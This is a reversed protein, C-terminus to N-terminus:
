AVAHAFRRVRLHVQHAGTVPGLFMLPCAGAIVAVGHERCLAVAEPSWAGPSGVGRFLWVMSVDRRVCERVADLAAPGTLMVIVADVEGPVSRLDPVCPLGDIMARYPNVPVVEHGHDVFARLITWGFKKPDDTAGVMVIRDHSLFKEVVAVDVDPERRARVRHGAVVLAVGIAAVVAQFAGFERVVALQMVIGLVLGVGLVMAM